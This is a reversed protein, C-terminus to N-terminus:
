GSSCLSTAPFHLMPNDVRELFVHQVRWDLQRKRHPQRQGSIRQEFRFSSLSPFWPARWHALSTHSVLEPKNCLMPHPRSVDAVNFTIRMYPQLQAVPQSDAPVRASRVQERVIIWTLPLSPQRVLQRAAGPISTRHAEESGLKERNPNVQIPQHAFFEYRLQLSVLGVLVRAGRERQREERM